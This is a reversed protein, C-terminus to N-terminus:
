IEFTGELELQGGAAEEEEDAVYLYPNREVPQFNYFVFVYFALSAMEVSVNVVWQYRYSLVAAFASVAIRTFYLYGVVVLYFQKFLTLKKLNRAAKGDTKSAERLNRISWIIPFFVACCCVVDVLLFIQNWALWDRGAPGTEGIMASAINEIVQLPIIIMLVNRERDQLYPKLFSWGTGILVIVTFLLIGKFFGFVYFAVDWGHATGTREVYWSDEAACALKLAKFLLLAGMVAHIREATARQRVCVFLWAALFAFYVASAVAFIGPLPLLGVPLYDRGNGGVLNYMETRVDMTVEVGDQCSSFLVTYQDAAPITVTGKGKGDPGVDKLRFLPMVYESTLPCFAAGTEEAYESENTIKFFLTNSILMFGMLGPDVAQLQSGEPVSWSVDSVSVEAVGGPKFGFEEFLIVPRSDSAIPTTKIEGHAVHLLQLAVLLVALFVSSAAM